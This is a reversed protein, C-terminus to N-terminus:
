AQIAGLSKLRWPPQSVSQQHSGECELCRQTSKLAGDHLRTESRLFTQILFLCCSGSWEVIVRIKGDDHIDLTSSRNDSHLDPNQVWKDGIGSTAKGVSVNAEKNPWEWRGGRRLIPFGGNHKKMLKRFAHNLTESCPNSQHTNPPLLWLNWHLRHQYQRVLAEPYHISVQARWRQVHIPARKRPPTMHM